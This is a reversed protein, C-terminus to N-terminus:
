KAIKLETVIKKKQFTDYCTSTLELELLALVELSYNNKTTDNSMGCQFIFSIDGTNHIAFGPEHSHKLLESCIHRLTLM